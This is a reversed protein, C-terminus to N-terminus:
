RCRPHASQNEHACPLHVVAHTAFTGSSGLSKSHASDAPLMISFAFAANCTPSSRCRARLSCPCFSLAGMYGPKFGPLSRGLGKPPVIFRLGFFGRYSLTSGHHIIDTSINASDNTGHQVARILVSDIWCRLSVVRQLLVNLGCEGCGFCLPLSITLVSLM